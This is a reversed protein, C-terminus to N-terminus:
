HSERLDLYYNVMPTNARFGAAEYARRAPAHSDDLGTQVTATVLGLDRFHQLVVRYMFTGWSQGRLDPRVGNTNLTGLGKAPDINFTVFGLLEGARDLVWISEPKERLWREYHQRRQEIWSPPDGGWVEAFIAEGVLQRFSAFIPMWCATAIAQVAELDDTTGHRLVVDDRQAITM